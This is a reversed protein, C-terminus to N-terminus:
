KMLINFFTDKTIFGEKDIIVKYLRHNISDPIEEYKELGIIENVFKPTTNSHGVIINNKGYTKKWFKTTFLSDKAEYFEIEGKYNYVIPILTHFTRMYDTTFFLDLNKDKFYEGWYKGREFGMESLQLNKNQPENRLKEAHRILYYTTEAPEKGEPIMLKRRTSEEKGCSLLITVIFLFCLNRM